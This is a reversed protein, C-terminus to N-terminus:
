HGLREILALAAAPARPKFGDIFYIFVDRLEPPKRERSSVVELGNPVKGQSWACARQAWMNLAEAPYGSEEEKSSRQLRAYVFSSTIDPIQPFEGKDTFVAGVQYSRLLEVFEATGFSEHRVEVTHWVSRGEITKPLLKLFAEFDTADYHKTPPFQWNIPGLKEKLNM